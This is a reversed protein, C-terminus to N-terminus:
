EYDDVVLIQLPQHRAARRAEMNGSKGSVKASDFGQEGYREYKTACRARGRQM